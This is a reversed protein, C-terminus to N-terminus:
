ETRLAIVPDKKSASRAPLVGSIATLVVSLIIMTIADTYKLMAIQKIGILPYLIANVIASIGYTTLVGILGSLLGIIFTEAVFLNSVDKKRGGLSRIVGIEKIREVVSVYTIIGIMVTSVVLSISTFAILAYSIIDIMQNILNIVLSLTDTYTVDQRSSRDLVDGNEFTIAGKDNWKDLYNTVMDKENFSIPYIVIENALDNGGLSRVMSNKMAKVDSTGGMMSSLLSSNDLLTVAGTATYDVGLYNYEYTYNTGMQNFMMVANINSESLDQVYKIISNTELMETKNVELVYEALAKTYYVGSALCGYQINDKPSLIGVVKLPLGQKDTIHSYKYPSMVNTSDYEYIQNNSYYTFKSENIGDILQDYNYFKVDLDSNYYTDNNSIDYVLNMFEDETYYGLRALLVDLLQDNKDLVLMIEDKEKAIKGHIEYQSSIYEENIPAQEFSPVIQTVFSSSDSFDTHSLIKTYKTTLASISIKYEQSNKSKKYNTYINNTFDIGYTFLMDSYYNAPMEKVYKIYDSTIDNKILLSKMDSSTQALYELMSNIYVKNPEKIIQKKTAKDMMKTMANLDYTEESITIPNGSLMDDQMSAVYNKIGASFALVLAIGVIGISGAIGVMTTRAKKSFLNKLSLMFATGFSMKARDKKGKNNVQKKAEEQANIQIDKEADELSYPNTDGTLKGDLLSIIRTSYKEALEPNHTVMIVLREKSIEKILDMIQVSTQTDLAGTPEDALLIEPNNVLARAIAVRQSQGGSLQNPKKNIQDKLGVRELAQRARQLREKKSIGAITLALEVNQLVTQHPILNYSQFIFGIKHNRYVDWHRDTYNKTSTGNIVLDGSTYHDLGGIINLLTTKGCGSPGLISVFESKRFNVDIGRVAHVKQNGVVYDKVINKLLLM